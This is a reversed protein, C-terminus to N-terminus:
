DRRCPINESMSCYADQQLILRGQADLAIIDGPKFTTRVKGPSGDITYLVDYGIIRREQRYIPVCEKFKHYPFQALEKNNLADVMHFIRCEQESPHFRSLHTATFPMPIGVRHCYEETVFVTSSIPTASVVHAYQPHAFTWRWTIFSLIVFLIFVGLILYKKSSLSM